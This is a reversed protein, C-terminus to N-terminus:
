VVSVVSYLFAPLFEGVFIHSVSSTMCIIIELYKLNYSVFLPEVLKLIM